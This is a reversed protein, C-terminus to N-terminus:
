KNEIVIQTKDAFQLSLAGNMYSIQVQPTSLINLAQESLKDAPVALELAFNQGAKFVPEFNLSVPEAYFVQNNYTLASIFKVSSIAKKGKNTLEYRLLLQPKNQENTVFRYNTVKIGFANNFAKLAQEPTMNAAKKTQKKPEAKKAQQQQKQQQSQPKQQAQQKPKNNQTEAVAQNTGFLAVTSALLFTTLYKFKM